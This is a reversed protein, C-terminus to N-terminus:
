PAAADLERLKRKLCNRSVGLLRAAASRSGGATELARRLLRQELARTEQKLDLSEPQCPFAAAGPPPPAPATIRKSLMGSEVARGDECLYALRRMEHELERVNGPWPYATLVDLARATIGTPRRGAERGFRVLFHQMLLALDERRARLSPVEVVFGAIRFYLDPRFGGAAQLRGLDANTAAVIRVDVPAPTGGLPQIEGDELARLLKAQLAPPLDGIEDLFLTGGAALQFKGKREMVGTAAGRAVGFMEAELLEGPVAACNIAVLPGGRRRSTQHLLQVLHEKGVGTEGAVLVPFDGRSAVGLQAYVERMAPSACCIFDGTLPKWAAAAAGAAGSRPAALPPPEIIRLLIGLLAASEAALPAEEILAVAISRGGPRAAAAALAPPELALRVVAGAPGPRGPALCERLAPALEKGASLGRLHGWLAAIEPEGRAQWTVVAGGAAGCHRAVLALAQLMEDPQSAPRLDLLSQVVALAGGVAPLPPEPLLWATIGSGGPAPGGEGGDLRLALVADGAPLREVRLAVPGFRVEDGAAVGARQIRAGNLFTGNKSDLDEVVLETGDWHLRAHRRSVGRVPLAIASEGLQGVLTEGSGLVHSFWGGEVRGSLRCLLPTPASPM